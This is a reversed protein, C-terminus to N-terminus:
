SNYTRVYSSFRGMGRCRELCDLVIASSAAQAEPFTFSFLLFFFLFKSRGRTFVSGKTENGAGM